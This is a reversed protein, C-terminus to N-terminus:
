VIEAKSSSQTLKHITIPQGSFAANNTVKDLRNHDTIDNVSIGAHHGKSAVSLRTGKKRHGFGHPISVVGEMIKNTIEVPIEIEGTASKVLVMEENELNLAAADTTNMMATCRNKGSVLGEVNHMWSNNSRLHRRGILKFENKKREKSLETLASKLNKLGELFVEAAIQIKGDQTNLVEPIRPELDSLHIGHKSDILKKLSLGGFLRSFSSGKGYPGTILALNILQRPNLYKLPFSSKYNSIKSFRKTLEKVIQWDYQQGEKPKFLRPSFKANNSVAFHNFILDYHDIELHSPPPLIIDAYKTSENMFIDISVMFDLKPLATELRKGNPSALVPNGASTILARIQGEGKTLMEEAMVSIPLEGDFEPLKRVRSHWRGDSKHWGKRRKVDVAPKPFMAGGPRDLHNTLINLVSTLWHCLGGHEQTSMGMRGYLVARDELVYEKTLRLLVKSPVGTLAEVKEPSFEAAIGKLKELGTLHNELHGLQIWDNKQILHLMGLLFFVDTSPRIFHHEDVVRSTETARPDFLIVKGGRNQIEKIKEVPGCGSMISGNSAIPNAGFMIFFDTRNIDPIPMNFAHGFVHYGIFHHPLQDMTTPSFFNKTKLSRLLEGSFLMMGLNHVTPNGLYVGISDNGYEKRIQNIKDGVVDYAKTWSIEEWEGNEKKLLPVKLRDPDEHVKHILAGKPCLSGKSFPDNIDGKVSLVRKGDHEIELGCMAECLNCVRYHKKTAAM